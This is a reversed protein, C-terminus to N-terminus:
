FSRAVIAGERNVSYIGNFAGGGANPTLSDLKLQSRTIWKSLYTFLWVFADARDNEDGVEPREGAVFRCLQEELEPFEGVFKIRNQECLASIPEARAIKGRSARVSEFPIPIPSQTKINQEVLDGGQNVEAIMIDADVTNFALVAKKGWEEPTGRLSHDGFVYGNRDTGVAGVIIGTENSRPNSTMAPDIAIAVRHLLEPLHPVRNRAIMEYTWLAGPTDELVDGYLEQRGLRTGEYRNVVTDIFTQTLYPNEYTTGRTLHVSPDKVLDRILKTPRPTTTVIAKSPPRRLGLMLMDWSDQAREWAPLEDAWVLGHQPGRMRDPEEGSYLHGRTGNPWKLLRRSATYECRFWPPSVAILGSDSEVQIDRTDGATAGVVAIHEVNGTKAYKTTTEAGTRTKGWGRGTMILWKVWEGDLPEKQSPRAWFDWDYLLATQAESTLSDILEAQQTPSLTLLKQRLDEIQQAQM